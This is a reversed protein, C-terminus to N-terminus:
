LLAQYRDLTLYNRLTNEIANADIHGGKETTIILNQGPLIGLDEYERLKVEFNDRYSKTDVGCHEIYICEDTWPNTVTFDPYLGAIDAEYRYKVGLEYLLNAIIVESKSRVMDGRATKHILQDAMYSNESPVPKMTKAEKRYQDLQAQMKRLTYKFTPRLLALEKKKQQLIIGLQRRMEIQQQLTEPDRVIDAYRKGAVIYHHYVYSNGKIVHYQLSGRPLTEIQAHLENIETYLGKYRELIQM